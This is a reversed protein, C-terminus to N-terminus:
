GLLRRRGSFGDPPILGFMRSGDTVPLQQSRGRGLRTDGGGGYAVANTALESVILQVDGADVGELELAGGVYRRLLAVSSADRDVTLAGLVVMAAM